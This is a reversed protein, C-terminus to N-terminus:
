IFEGNIKRNRPSKKNKARPSGTSVGEIHLLAAHRAHAHRTRDGQQLRQKLFAMGIQGVHGVTHIVFEVFGKGRGAV